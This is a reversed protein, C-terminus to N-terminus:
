ADPPSAADVMTLWIWVVEPLMSASRLYPGEGASVMEGTPQYMARIAARAVSLLDFNQDCHQTSGDIAAMVRSEMETPERM